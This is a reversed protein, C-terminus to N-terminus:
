GYGSGVSRDLRVHHEGWRPPRCGWCHWVPDAVVAGRWQVTGGCNGCRWLSLVPVHAVDRQMESMAESTDVVKREAASEPQEMQGGVLNSPGEQGPDHALSIARGDRLLLGRDELRRVSRAYGCRQPETVPDGPEQGLVAARIVNSPAARGGCAHLANLIASQQVSLESPL